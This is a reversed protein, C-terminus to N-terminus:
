RGRNFNDHGCEKLKLDEHEVLYEWHYGYANGTNSNDHRCVNQIHKDSFGLERRIQATSEWVRILNGDLSYQITKKKNNSREIALRRAYERSMENTFELTTNGKEYNCKMHALRVNEWEHKGGLSLPFVHDISPYNDKAIFYGDKKEFDNWDCPKGCIHCISSDREYLKKLNIDPDVIRGKLRKDNRANRKLKGYKVSCEHSCTKNAEKDLCYFLGGCIVCKREVTHAKQYFLKEVRKKEARQEAQQKQEAVYEEWTCKRRKDISKGKPRIKEWKESCESSCCKKREKFTEFDAGCVVCKRHYPEINTNVKKGHATKYAIDRCRKSCFIKRIDHAEFTKGCLQCIRDYRKQIYKGM